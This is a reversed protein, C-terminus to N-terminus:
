EVYGKFAHLTKVPNLKVKKLHAKSRGPKKASKKTAM